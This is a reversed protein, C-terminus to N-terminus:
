DASKRKKSNKPKEPSEAKSPAMSSSLSIDTASLPMRLNEAQPIKKWSRGGYDAELDVEETAKQPLQLLMSVNLVQDFAKELRVCDKHPLALAVPALSGAMSHAIQYQQEQGNEDAAMFTAKVGGARHKKDEQPM